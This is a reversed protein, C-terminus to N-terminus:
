FNWFPVYPMNRILVSFSSNEPFKLFFFMKESLCYHVNSVVFEFNRVLIIQLHYRCIFYSLLFPIPSTIASSALQVIISKHIHHLSQFINLCQNKRFWSKFMTFAKSHEYIYNINRKVNKINKSRNMLHQCEQQFVELRM